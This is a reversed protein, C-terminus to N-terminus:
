LITIESRFKAREIDIATWVAADSHLSACANIVSTCPSRVVSMLARSPTLSQQKAELSTPCCSLVDMEADSTELVWM